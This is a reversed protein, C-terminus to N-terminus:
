EEDGERVVAAVINYCGNERLNKIEQQLETWSGTFEETVNLIENGAEDTYDYIIEYTEM